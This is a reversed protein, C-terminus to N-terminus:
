HYKLNRSIKKQKDFINLNFEKDVDNVDPYVYYDLSNNDIEIGLNIKEYNEFKLIAENLSGFNYGRIYRRVEVKVKMPIFIDGLYGGLKKLSNFGHHTVKYSNCWFKYSKLLFESSVEDKWFGDSEDNIAFYGQTFSDALWKGVSSLSALRQDKLGQSEPIAGTHFGTIDRNLMKYLFAAQVAKNGSAAHLEEFYKRDGIRESAVDFVCYRREDKSAPVAHDNNTVMFIKLYNPQTDADVGKREINITPETIHSKLVGEHQKDGSYFAEDAFLFCVDALHANFKGVLHRSNCIHLGHQGWIKRLFHGITGKGCGKEGRLVLASGAPREPYQFTYAVWDNFYKILLPDNKCIVSEIHKIIIGLDAGPTPEVAFGQWGNFCNDPVQKGPAFRWGGLYKRADEHTVWATIKDKYIPYVVEGNVREDVQIKENAYMKRLEEQEIFEYSTRSEHHLEASVKRMIKHKGGILVQAHTINFDQVFQNYELRWGSLTAQAVDHGLFFTEGGNAFTHIIPKEQNSYIISKGLIERELPHVCPVEHYQQLNDLIEKVTVEKGSELLILFEAPLRKLDIAQNVIEISQQETLKTNRKKIRPSHTKLYEQRAFNAEAQVSASLEDCIRKFKAEEQDTLPIISDALLLEGPFDKILWNQTLREDKLIAGGEFIPQNSTGLAKDILSNIKITGAKTVKAYGYGAIVARKHWAELITKNIVTKDIPIFTHVGKIGCKEIGDVSINSSASTSMVKHAKTLAPDIKNLADNLEEITTIGFKEVSDSDICIIGPKDSFPFAEKTRIADKPCYGECLTHHVGQTIFDGSQLKVLYVYLDTYPIEETLFAGGWFNGTSGKILEGAESIAYSKATQQNVSAFLTFRINQENQEKNDQM